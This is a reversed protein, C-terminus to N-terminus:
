DKKLLRSYYFNSAYLAGAPNHCLVRDKVILYTVPAKSHQIFLTDHGVCLGIIVNFDTGMENLLGAQLVPNCMAEFHGSNIKKEEPVSIATKDVSGVKCAVSVTEVGKAEAIKAFIGCESILGICSAIGVKRYGMKKAFLLIEEVRTARGYYEGEIEAAALAMRGVGDDTKYRDVAADIAAQETHTTLCFSPFDKERNKCSNIKCQACSFGNNSEKMICAGNRGQLGNKVGM